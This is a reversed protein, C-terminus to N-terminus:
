ESATPDSEWGLENSDVTRAGEIRRDGDVDTRFHDVTRSLEGAEQSLQEASETVETLSSTQEEAAAAVNEAETNTQQSIATAENVMQLVQQTSQAQERTGKSIEQVGNNTEKAFSAIRELSQVAREVAGRHQGIRKSTKEVEAGARETQEQIRELHSQIEDAAEKTEEALEKVEEAVVGFGEGSEEADASRSAEINANLALMNTQEAIESIFEIVDGIKEMEAELQQIEEVAGSSEAEIEDMGEIAENAAQRGKQGVEVTREALKAVEDSVTAIEQITTSLQETEEAVTELSDHQREAGASIEQVSETVQESATRVEQSSATVEESSASVITSFRDVRDVVEEITAAMENFEEAIAAMAENDEAPEMRSTLDGAAYEQMVTAYEDARQQLTEHMQEIREREREAERKAEEANQIQARLADRMSGFSHYLRGFEDSRNTELDVSLDGEEMREARDRLESLPTVTQKGLVVGVGGLALLAIAVFVLLGQQIQDRLQYANGAPAHKIVVWNKNEVPAYAVVYNGGLQSEKVGSSRFGSEGALGAKVAPIDTQSADAVYPELRSEERNSFLVKTSGPTPKVVETFTGDISSDFEDEITRPNVTLVLAWNTRQHVPSMFVMVNEGNANVYPDSIVVKDDNPFATKRIWPTESVSNGVRDENTSTVIEEDVTNVIHLSKVRDPLKNELKDKLYSQVESNSSSEGLAPHDSLTRAPIENGRIQENIRDAEAQAELQLKDEINDNLTATAQDQLLFGGVGIILVISCLAVTFKLLYSQRLGFSVSTIQQIFGAVGSDDASPSEEPTEDGNAM